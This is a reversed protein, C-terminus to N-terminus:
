VDSIRASYLSSIGPERMTVGYLVDAAEMTARNHTIVIFQSDRAYQRVLEAFRVVNADDLPADVEDLVCFPSPKVRMLAFLLAQATLAKEGGSLLNMNQLTKGPPQVFVEIGTELLDDPRTLELRAVGGGFLISFVEAFHQQVREFTELFLGRTSEDIERIAQLLDREAEELDARQSALFEWRERVREFEAVAGTNVEGMARIERRLRAVEAATGHKVLLPEPWTLADDRTIEYEEWLREVMQAMEAEGRALALELEHLESSHAASHERSERLARSAADLANLLQQARAQAEMLEIRREEMEATAQDARAALEELERGDRDGASIGSDLERRREELLSQTRVLDEEVSAQAQGLAREREAAGSLEAAVV